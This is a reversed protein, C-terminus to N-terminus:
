QRQRLICPLWRPQASDRPLPSLGQGVVWGCQVRLQGFATKTVLRSKQKGGLNWGGFPQDEGLFSRLDGRHM